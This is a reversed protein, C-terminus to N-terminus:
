LKSLLLNILRICNEADGAPFKNEILYSILEDIKNKIFTKDTEIKKPKM